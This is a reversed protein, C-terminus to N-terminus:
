ILYIYMEICYIQKNRFCYFYLPSVDTTKPVTWELFVRTSKSCLVKLEQRLVEIVEEVNDRITRVSIHAFSVHRWM